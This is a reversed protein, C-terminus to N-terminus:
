GTSTPAQAVLRIYNLNVVEQNSTGMSDLAIKMVQQGAQLSVTKTLTQWTLVGTYAPMIFQGTKDIGNFEVHFKGGGDISSVRAELTYNGASAVNVTYELWEGGGHTWGIVFGGDHGGVIDVGGSRYAGGNNAADNDHYAIGEGGVDYNEVQITGPVAWATGGYPTQVPAIVSPYLQSTPIIAKLTSASSWRLQAVAGVQNEYYDLKINYKTGATLAISGSSETPQQDIWKDILLVNNVWLRIGDDGTVHFTYTQSYQAQVQGTWRASFTDAGIASSPSGSGWNFNVTADTRSISAGTFDKNDFYQGTLGTGTGVVVPPTTTTSVVVAVSNSSGVAGGNDTARASLTYSGAALSSMIWSYPSTTDTGILTGGNYFDVKSVTGNSDSATAALSISAPATFSTGNTSLSVTPAPNSTTAPGTFVINSTRSGVYVQPSTRYTVQGHRVFNEFTVNSVTSTADVAFLRIAGYSTGNFPGTVFIDKFLCGNIKTNTNAYTNVAWLESQGERNIRINEFRVNELNQNKNGGIEAVPNQHGYDYPYTDYHLVDIDTFTINRMSPAPDGLQQWGSGLRVINARNTWFSCRTM